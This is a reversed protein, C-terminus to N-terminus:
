FSPTGGLCQGLVNNQWGVNGQSDYCMSSPGHGNTGTGGEVQVFLSWTNNTADVSCYFPEGTTYPTLVSAGNDIAEQKLSSSIESLCSATTTFKTTKNAIDLETRAQALTAKVRTNKAKLRAGSLSVTIMAALIGIIAIVIMLEILTFGNRRM